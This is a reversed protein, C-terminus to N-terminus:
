DIFGKVVSSPVVRGEGVSHNGESVSVLKGNVKQVAVVHGQVGGERTVAVKIEGEEISQTDVPITAAYGNLTRPVYYGRDRLHKVCGGSYGVQSKFDRVPWEGAETVPNPIVVVSHALRRETYHCM